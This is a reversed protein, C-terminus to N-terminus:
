LRKFSVLFKLLLTNDDKVYFYIVFHLYVQIKLHKHLYRSLAINNIINHHLIQSITNLFLNNIKRKYM